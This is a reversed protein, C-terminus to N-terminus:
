DQNKSPMPNTFHVRVETGHPKRQMFILEGGNMHAFEKVLKLGIGTGIEGNTGKFSIRSDKSNLNKLVEDSIGVGEDRVILILGEVDEQQVIIEIKSQPRSFKLANTILNSIISTLQHEDAFIKADTPCEVQLEIQKLRASSEFLAMLEEIFPVLEIVTQHLSKEQMQLRSWALINELTKLTMETDTKLHKVVENLDPDKIESLQLIHIFGLISTLPSRLDHGLVSLIRNKMQNMEDLQAQQEKLQTLHLELQSNNNEQISLRIQRQRYAVLLIGTLILLGIVLMLYLYRSKQAAALRAQDETQQAKLVRNESDSLEKEYITRLQAFNRNRFSVNVSDQIKKEQELWNMASKYNQIDKYFEYLMRYGSIRLDFTNLKEGLDKAKLLYDEAKTMNGLKQYALGLGGYSYFYGLEIGNARSVALTTDYHGIAQNYDGQQLFFDGINYHCIAIGGADGFGKKLLLAKRLYFIASDYQGSNKFCLGLNNYNKSLQYDANIERNLEIAMFFHKKAMDLNELQERYLEGINNDVIALSAKDGNSRFFDATTLLNSLAEEYQENKLYALSMNSLLGYYADPDGDKALEIAEYYYILAATGDNQLSQISGQGNLAKILLSTDSAEEALIELKRYLSDALALKQLDFSIAAKYFTAYRLGESDNTKISLREAIDAYHLTQEYNTVSYFKKASDLSNDIKSKFNESQGFLSVWLFATFFTLGTQKLTIFNSM